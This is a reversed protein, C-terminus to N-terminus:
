LLTNRHGRLLRFRRHLRDAPPPPSSGSPLASQARVSPGNSVLGPWSGRVIVGPRGRRENQACNRTKILRQVGAVKPNVGVLQIFYSEEHCMITATSTIHDIEIM